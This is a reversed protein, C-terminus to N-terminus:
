SIVTQPNQRSHEGAPQPRSFLAVLPKVAHVIDFEEEIKARGAQGLGARLSPDTSLRTMKEALDNWDSPCFLLGHQEDTVLEPIGALRPAIVPLGLAMAEMLVIPLGEMFSALVLVDSHAIQLLAEEESLAGLLSVHNCLRHARVSERIRHLGPGNGVITLFADVHRSRLTAFAELLGEHGKEPSLRSVCIIRVPSQVSRSRAPQPIATLNLACRVVMIKHWREPPVIRMAQARMFYSACVVFRAAEIKRGLLYGAPYDTESIGHLTLSWPIRLFQSALLGVTAGSNAFHNHLHRIGRRELEDALLIAEAFYFFAWTIARLGPVRHRLALLLVRLYSMPRRLLAKGHVSALTAIRPPLLYYTEELAARYSASDGSELPASRVSFVRVPLGQMRLADIERRIFTHSKTPYQSVLYGISSGDTAEDAYSTCNPGSSPLGHRHFEDKYLISVQAPGALAASRSRSNRGCAGRRRGLQFVECATYFEAVWNFKTV